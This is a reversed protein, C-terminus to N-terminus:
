KAMDINNYAQHVKQQLELNGTKKYHPTYGMIPAELGSRLLRWKKSGKLQLTFNEQFDTHWSTHNGARSVFTEIEGQQDLAQINNGAPFYGGFNHGM